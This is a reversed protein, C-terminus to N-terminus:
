LYRPAFFISKTVDLIDTFVNLLIQITHSIVHFTEYFKKM